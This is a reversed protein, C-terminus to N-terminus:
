LYTTVAPWGPVMEFSMTGAKYYVPVQSMSCPGYLLLKLFAIGQASLRQVAGPLLSPTPQSFAATLETIKGEAIYVLLTALSDEVQTPNGFYNSVWTVATQALVSQIQTFVSETLLSYNCMGAYSILASLIQAIDLYPAGVSYCFPGSGMGYSTFLDSAVVYGSVATSPDYLLGIMDPLEMGLIFSKQSSTLANLTVSSGFYTESLPPYQVPSDNIGFRVLSPYIAGGTLFQISNQLPFNNANDKRLVMGGQPRSSLGYVGVNGAMMNKFFQQAQAQAQESNGLINLRMVLLRAPGTAQVQALSPRIIFCSACEDPAIQGCPNQVIQNQSASWGYGTYFYWVSEWAIDYPFLTGLPATSAAGQYYIQCEVPSIDRLQAANAPQNFNGPGVGTEYAATGNIVYNYTVPNSTQVKATAKSTIQAMGEASIPVSTANCQLVSPRMQYGMPPQLYTFSGPDVDPVVMTCVQNNNPTGTITFTVTAATDSQNEICSVFNTSTTYGGGVLEARPAGTNKDNFAHYFYLSTDEKQGLTYHDDSYDLGPGSIGISFYLSENSFATGSDTGPQVTATDGTGTNFRAGMINKAKNVTVYVPVNAGNFVRFDYYYGSPTKGIMGEGMAKLGNWMSQGFGTVSSGIDGWSEAKLFTITAALVLFVSVKIKM